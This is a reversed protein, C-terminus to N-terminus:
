LFDLEWEEARRVCLTLGSVREVVVRDGVGLTEAPAEPASEDEEGLDAHFTSRRARWLAGDIFVQGGGDEWRRVEGVRGSLGEAGSRIRRQPGHTVERAILLTWAGAALGLGVGVPVAIAASGGVSVIAAIGGAILALGGAVGLVGSPAHTEGVVLVAGLVLLVIGVATMASIETEIM